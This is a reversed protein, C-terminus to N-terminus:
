TYIVGTVTYANTDAPLAIPPVGLTVTTNSTVGVIVHSGVVGFRRYVWGVQSNPATFAFNTAANDLVWPTVNLRIGNADNQAGSLVPPEDLNGVSYGGVGDATAVFRRPYNFKCNTPYAGFADFYLFGVGTITQRDIVIEDVPGQFYVARGGNSLEIVNGGLHVDNNYYFSVGFADGSANVSRISNGGVYVNDAFYPLFGYARFGDLYATNGTISVNKAVLGGITGLFTVAARTSTGNSRVHMVNNSIVINEGAGDNVNYDVAGYGNKIINGTVTLDYTGRFSICSEFGTTAVVNTWDIVNDSVVVRKCVNNASIARSPDKSIYVAHRDGSIANFTNNSVVIDFCTQTLVGYGGAGLPPHFVQGEFSCNTVKIRDAATAVVGFTFGGFTCNNVTINSCGGGEVYPDTTPPYVSIAGSAASSPTNAGDFLFGVISINDTKTFSSGNYGIIFGPAGASIAVIEAGYGTLNQGNTTINLGGSIAYRGAPFYINKVGSNLAAQIFARDDTVGDGVAGFDKVSVTQALKAEVNTQVANTFPPDYIVDEANVGSIVVDSYRETSALASYVITGNKNQVQISYDSNVYLRAPTGANSPYGSITRIPQVAPQTLAADWYVSIPNTIPNLNTTGIWIYGADLPQGDIDTFIPYTPQISLASM